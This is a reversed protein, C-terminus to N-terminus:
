GLLHSQDHSLQTGLEDVQRSYLLLRCGRRTPRVVVNVNVVDSSTVASFAISGEVVAPCILPIHTADHSATAKERKSM